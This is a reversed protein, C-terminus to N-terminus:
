KKWHVMLERRQAPTLEGAIDAIATAFHRSVQEFQEMAKARLRELEAPDVSEAELASSLEMRLAERSAQLRWAEPVLARVHALVRAEQEDTADVKWLAWEAHDTWQEQLEAASRPADDRGGFHARRERGHCGSLNGVLAAIIGALILGWFFGRLAGRARGQEFNYPEM